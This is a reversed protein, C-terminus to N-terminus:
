HHEGFRERRDYQRIRVAGPHAEAREPLALGRGHDEQAMITSDEATLMDRLQACVLLFKAISADIQRRDAKAVRCVRAHKTFFGAYGEWEQDVLLAAGVMGRSQLAGVQQVQQPRFVVGRALTGAAPAVVLMLQPLIRELKAAAEDEPGAVHVAEDM